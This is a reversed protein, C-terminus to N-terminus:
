LNYNLGVFLRGTTSKLNDSQNYRDSLGYSYGANLGITGFDIGVGGAVALNLRNLRNNGRDESLYDLEGSDGASVGLVNASWKWSYKSLMSAGLVPGAFVKLTASGLALRYDLFAEVSLALENYHNEWKAGLVGGLNGATTDSKTFYEANVGLSVGLGAKLNYRGSVGVYLGNKLNPELDVSNDNLTTTLSQQIYGANFSASQAKVSQVAMMMVVAMLMCNIKKM